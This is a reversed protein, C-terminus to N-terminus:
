STTNLSATEPKDRPLETCYLPILTPSTVLRRRSGFSGRRTRACTRKLASVGTLSSVRALNVKVPMVPVEKMWSLPPVGCLGSSLPLSPSSGTITAEGDGIARKSSSPLSRSVLMLMSTCLAFLRNESSLAVM